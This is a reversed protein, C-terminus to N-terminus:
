NISIITISSNSLEKFGQLWIKHFRQYSWMKSRQRDTSVLTNCHILWWCRGLKAIPSTPYLSHVETSNTNNVHDENLKLMDNSMSNLMNTNIRLKTYYLFRGNNNHNFSETHSNWHIQISTYPPLIKLNKFSTSIRKADWNTESLAWQSSLGEKTVPKTNSTGQWM